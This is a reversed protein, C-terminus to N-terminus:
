VLSHGPMFLARCTGLSFCTQPAACTMGSQKRTKSRLSRLPPGVVLLSSGSIPSSIVNENETKIEVRGITKGPGSRRWCIFVLIPRVVCTRFTASIRIYFPETVPLVYTQTWVRNGLPLSLCAPWTSITLSVEVHLYNHYMPLTSKSRDVYSTLMRSAKVRKTLGPLASIRYYRTDLLDM